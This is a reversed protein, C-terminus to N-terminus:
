LSNGILSPQQRRTQTKCCLLCDPSTASAAGAGRYRVEAKIAIMPGLSDSCISYDIRTLVTGNLLGDISSMSSRDDGHVSSVAYHGESM